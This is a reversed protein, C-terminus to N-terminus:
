EARMAQLPSTRLARLAPVVSGAVTVLMVVLVGAGLTGPDGPPIGFLLANMGRGAAYAALLGPVGGFVALRAAEGVIMRGVQDPRAGLALRVGIERSRQAVMFALLGHIGIGTLLLAVAALAALVRLQSRRGVTQEEIVEGLLRVDSVPQEPNVRHVIDRVPGILGEAQGARIALDRPAYLLGVTDPAQSSPVYLQPESTRELGRVRIDGVVGVVSREQARVTFRKGIPDQGPWFKEVFSASVVAVPPGDSRDTDDLVRGAVVPLALAELYGPTVLRYSVGDPRQSRERGTIEVGAIGGTLVMPLGSSYGAAEVGPLRTVEDLVRRYFEERGVRSYAQSMPLATRLTLVNATDFGPNVGQVKWVARILLGSSILLVVSVAVEVSVLVARLRQRSVGARTGERLGGFGTRGSARLAPVLGFGFGILATFAGALALIRFDLRPVEGLPLTMPVLHSLLPMTLTAVAIGAAGGVLALLVGETVLQRVLRERGAGLASRVALERESGAARALLLNALNAATLLLLGLSAGCLALLMLRYSPAVFDRQRFFSFGTEANTEPFDRALRAAILSLETRAEEFTVGPGLRGVAQLYTDDRALFDEERLVLSTWLKVAPSPFHVGAPMVGIVEYTADDLRVAQGLIAPDGGFHTQWLDHSLVVSRVDRDGTVDFLRGLRPQVGLTPFVEATVRAAAIRLPQGTGVLNVDIGSFAGLGQVTTTMTAASRYNAPSLENMCGWGGGERPGECLRVLAQPEPFPLPRLLVFDAVSFTATNAGVGIATVLVVTLSFGSSRRLTRLAYQLDQRLIDGHAQVANPVVDGIAAVLRILPGRGRTSAEFTAILEPAYEARFSAPYLRLLLRYFGLM